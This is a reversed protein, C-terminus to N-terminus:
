EVIRKFINDSLGSEPAQERFAVALEERRAALEWSPNGFNALYSSLAANIQDDSCSGSKSLDALYTACQERTMLM